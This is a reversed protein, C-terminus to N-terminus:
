GNMRILVDIQVKNYLEAMVKVMTQMAFKKGRPSNGYVSVADPFAARTEHVDPVRGAGGPAPDIGTRRRTRAIGRRSTRGRCRTEAIQTLSLGLDTLRKIRLVRVLHALQSASWGM